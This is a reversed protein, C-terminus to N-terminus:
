NVSHFSRNRSMFNLRNVALLIIYGLFGGILGVVFFMFIFGANLIGTLALSLCFGALVGLLSYALALQVLSRLKNFAVPIFYGFSIFFLLSGIITLNQYLDLVTIGTGPKYGNFAIAVGYLPVYCFVISILVILVGFLINSLSRFTSMSANLKKKLCNTEGFSVIAKEIAKENTFGNNLFESKLLELHDRFECTLETKKKKNIKLDDIISSIYL